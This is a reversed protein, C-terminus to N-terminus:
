EEPCMDMDRARDTETILYNSLETENMFLKAPKNKELPNIKEGDVLIVKGARESDEDNKSVITYTPDIVSWGREFAIRAEYFTFGKEM